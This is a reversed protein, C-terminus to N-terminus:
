HPAALRRNLEQLLAAVFADLREAYRGKKIDSENLLLTALARKGALDALEALVKPGGSGGQTCFSGVRALKGANAQLYSRMPSAMHSAWVPTGLIVLDYSKADETAPEIPPLHKGLAERACRFYGFPGHRKTKADRIEEVDADCRAALEMAVSRTHGTRSYYVVLIKAM